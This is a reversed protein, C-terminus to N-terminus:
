IKRPKNGILRDRVFGGVLLCKGGADAIANVIAKLTPDMTGELDREQEDTGGHYSSSRSRRAESLIDLVNCEHICSLKM